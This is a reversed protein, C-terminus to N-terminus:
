WSRLVNLNDLLRGASDPCPFDVLSTIAAGGGDVPRPAAGRIPDRPFVTRRQIMASYFRSISINSMDPNRVQPLNAQAPAVSTSRVPIPAPTKLSTAWAGGAALVPPGLEERECDTRGNRSLFQMAQWLVPIGEPCTSMCFSSAEVVERSSSEHHVHVRIYIVM